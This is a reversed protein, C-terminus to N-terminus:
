VKEQLRRISNARGTKEDIDIIVGHLQADETATDFKTPMHTLFKSLVAEKNRGIVSNYPGAMGVDTIYATGNPLIKEDATQIHTHTGVIASVTGDLYWGLAIKESTAEAHVDVIIINTKPKIREVEAKAVHFPCEVPQMFVRGIINVVGIKYGVPTEIVTSGSGAAERPYNAPRLIRKDSALRDLIEKRKYVHDGSTLCDVCSNLLEDALVPTIGSGGAINEANAIVFDIRERKKIKPVIGCVARRGPEGVVDGIFLINM